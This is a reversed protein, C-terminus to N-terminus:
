DNTIRYNKIINWLDDITETPIENGDEDCAKNSCKLTDDREYLWWFIWDVGEENFNSKILHEFMQFGFEIIPSEFLDMGLKELNELNSWHIQHSKIIECFLEKTM